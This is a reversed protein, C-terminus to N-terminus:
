QESIFRFLDRGRHEYINSIVFNILKETMLLKSTRWSYSFLHVGCKWHRNQFFESFFLIKIDMIIKWSIRQLIKYWTYRKRNVALNRFYGAGATAPAAGGLFWPLRIGCCGHGNEVVNKKARGLLTGTEFQKLPRRLARVFFERSSWM